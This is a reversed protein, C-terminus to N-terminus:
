KASENVPKITSVRAVGVGRIRWNAAAGFEATECSVAAHTDRHTSEAAVTLSMALSLAARDRRPLLPAVGFNDHQQRFGASAFALAADTATPAAALIANSERVAPGFFRYTLGWYGVLAGYASGATAVATFSCHPATVESLTALLRLVGHAADTQLADSATTDFPGAILFGDGSTEVAQLLAGAVAAVANSVGRWAAALVSVDRLGAVSLQVQLISLGRWQRRVHTGAARDAASMCGALPVAHPPLLGALLKEYRDTQELAADAVLAASAEAVFHLCSLRKVYYRYVLVYLFGAWVAYLQREGLALIVVHLTATILAVQALWPLRPFLDVLGLVFGLMIVNVYRAGDAPGISAACVAFAVAYLAVDLPLPLGPWARRLVAVILALTLSVAVGVMELEPTLSVSRREDGDNRSYELTMAVLCTAFMVVPVVSMLRKSGEFHRDEFARFLEQTEADAFSLWIVSHTPTASISTRATGQEDSAIVADSADPVISLQETAVTPVTTVLMAGPTVGPLAAKAAAFARGAVIYRKCSGGALGGILEGSCVSVRVRFPLATASELVWTGFSSVRELHTDCSSVLGACAACSDGYSMVNVVDNLTASVDVLLMLDHLSVVVAEILLGCSWNAFDAIDCVAVSGNDSRHNTPASLDLAILEKPLAAAVVARTQESLQEIELSARILTAHQLFSKREARERVYSDIMFVANVTLLLLLVSVADVLPVATFIVTTLFAAAVFSKGVGLLIPLRPKMLIHLSAFASTMAGHVLLHKCPGQQHPDARCYNYLLTYEAIYFITGGATQSVLFWETRRALTLQRAATDGRKPALVITVLWVAVSVALFAVTAALILSTALTQPTLLFKVPIIFVHAAIRLVVILRRNRGRFRVFDEELSASAFTLMRGPTAADAATFHPDQLEFVDLKDADSRKSSTTDSM